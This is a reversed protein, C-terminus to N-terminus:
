KKHKKPPIIPDGKWDKEIKQDGKWDREIKPNGLWDREVKDNGLFDKDAEWNGLWNQRYTRGDQKVVGESKTEDSSLWAKLVFFFLLLIFILALIYFIAIALYIIIALVGAGVVIASTIRIPKNVRDINKLWSTKFGIYFTFAAVITFVLGGPFYEGTVISIITVLASVCAIGILVWRQISFSLWPLLGKRGETEKLKDKWNTSKFRETYKGM